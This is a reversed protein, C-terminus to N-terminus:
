YLTLTLTLTATDTDHPTVIRLQARTVGAAATLAPNFELIGNAVVSPTIEALSTDDWVVGTLPEIFDISCQLEDATFGDLDSLTLFARINGFASLDPLQFTTGATAGGQVTLGTALPTVVTM